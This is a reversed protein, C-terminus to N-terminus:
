PRTKKSIPFTAKLQSYLKFLQPTNLTKIFSPVGGVWGSYGVSHLIELYKDVGDGRGTEQDYRDLVSHTYIYKQVQEATINPNNVKM